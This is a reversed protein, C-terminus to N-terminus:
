WPVVNGAAVEDPRPERALMQNRHPFRGFREIVDHHLRAYRILESDGLATFLALSRQQDEIRESHQLPMMLFLREDKTMASDLGRDLAGKAVALALPDTAFQEAHGRFLHRPFQDFLIVASVATDADVLFDAPPRERQAEWLDLFREKIERDLDPDASWWRQPPQELWFRRVEEVWPEGTDAGAVSSM